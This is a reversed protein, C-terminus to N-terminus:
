QGFRFTMQAATAWPLNSCTKGAEFLLGPDRERFELVRESLRQRVEQSMSGGIRQAIALCIAEREPQAAKRYLDALDLLQRRAAGPYKGESSLKLARLLLEESRDLRGVALMTEGATCLVYISNHGGASRDTLVVAEEALRMAVELDGDYLALRAEIARGSSRMAIGIEHDKAIRNFRDLAAKAAAANGDTLATDALDTLLDASRTWDECAAWLEAGAEWDLLAQAKKGARRSLMGQQTRLEAQVDLAIRDSNAEVGARLFQFEDDCGTEALLLALARAQDEL